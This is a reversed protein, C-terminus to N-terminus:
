GNARFSSDMKEVGEGLFGQVEARNRQCPAHGM